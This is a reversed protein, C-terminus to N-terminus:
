GRAQLGSRFFAEKERIATFVKILQDYSDADDPDLADLDWGDPGKAIIVKLTAYVQCFHGFFSSLQEQGETLRNFEAAIATSIRMSRRRVEFSGVGEVELMYTNDNM